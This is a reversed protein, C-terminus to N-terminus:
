QDNGIAQNKDRVEVKGSVETAHKARKKSRM